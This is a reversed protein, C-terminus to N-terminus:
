GGLPDLSAGRGYTGIQRRLGEAIRMMAEDENGVVTGISVQVMPGTPARGLIGSLQSPTGILEGAHVQALGSKTIAGGVDFSKFAGFWGQDNSSIDHGFFRGDALNTGSKKSKDGGSFFDILPQFLGSFFDKIQEWWGTFADGLGRWADALGRLAAPIVEFPSKLLAFTGKALGEVLAIVLDDINSLVAEVVQPADTITGTIQDMIGSIMSPYNQALNMVQSRLGAIMDAGNILLEYIGAIMAGIPGAAALVGPIGASLAGSVEGLVNTAANAKDAVTSETDQMVDRLDLIAGVIPNAARWEREEAIADMLGSQMDGVLGILDDLQESAEGLPATAGAALQSVGNAFQAASRAAAEKADKEAERTMREAERADDRALRLAEARRDKLGDYFAKVHAGAGGDAFDGSAGEFGLLAALDEPSVDGAAAQEGAAVLGDFASRALETTGFTMYKLMTRAFSQAGDKVGSEDLGQIALGIQSVLGTMALTATGVDEAFAGALTVGTIKAATGLDDMAVNADRIAQRQADTIIDARGAEDLEALWEDASGVLQYIAAAGAAAAATVGAIGITFAGIPNALLSMSDGTAGVVDGLQQFGPIPVKGIMKGLDDLENGLKGIGSKNAAESVDGISTALRKAEDAASGKIELVWEVLRTTM